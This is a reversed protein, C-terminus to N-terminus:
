IVAACVPCEFYTCPLPYDFFIGKFLDAKDQLHPALDFIEDIFSYVDDPCGSTREYCRISYITSEFSFPYTRDSFGRQIPLQLLKKWLKYHFPTFKHDHM